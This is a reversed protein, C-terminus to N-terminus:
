TSAARRDMMVMHGLIYRHSEPRAARAEQVRRRMENQSSAAAIEVLPRNPIYALPIYLDSLRHPPEALGKPAHTAEGLTISLM